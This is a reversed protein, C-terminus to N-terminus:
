SHYDLVDVNLAEGEEWQFIVRWQKNVRISWYSKLKGSLKELRNSPPVKLTEVRNAANLQDFLRQCKPHLETPVKRAHRSKTGDYIDQATKSQFGRIM